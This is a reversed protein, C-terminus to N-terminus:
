NLFFILFVAGPIGLIAVILTNILNLPVSITFFNGIINILAILGAGAISNLLLYRLVKIPFLFIRGFFIITFIGVAYALFAALEDNLEFGM